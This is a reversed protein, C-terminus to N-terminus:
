FFSSLEPGRMQNSLCLELLVSVVTKWCTIVREAPQMMADTPPQLHSDKHTSDVSQEFASIKM